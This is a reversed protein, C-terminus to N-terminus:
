KVIQKFIIMMIDFFEPEDTEEVDNITHKHHPFTAINKFHEANDYRFIINKKDDMFHYGYKIKGKIEIDKVEIVKLFYGNIFSIEIKIYGQLNSYIKKEINYDKIIDKFFTLSDELGIFYKEIM